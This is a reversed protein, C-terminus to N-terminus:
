VRWHKHLNLLHMAEKPIVDMKKRIDGISYEQIGSSEEEIRQYFAKTIQMVALKLDEPMNSSGYGGTYTTCVDMGYFGNVRTIEGTDTDVDFDSLAQAPVKLYVNTNDIAEAGYRPLLESSQYSSFDSMAEAVWGSGVANIATVMADITANTAFTLDDAADTGNYTLTIVSSNVNVIATTVSNTNYIRLADDTGIAVKSIKTIPVERLFLSATDNNFFTEKYQASEFKRGCYDKVFEEVSNHITSVNSYSDDASLEMYNLIDSLAVIAM